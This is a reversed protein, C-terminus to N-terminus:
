SKPSANLIQTLVWSLRIMFMAGRISSKASPPPGVPQTCPEPIQPRPTGVHRNSAVPGRARPKQKDPEPVPYLDAESQNRRSQRAHRGTSDMTDPSVSQAVPSPVGLLGRSDKSLFKSPNTSFRKFRIKLSYPRDSLGVHAIVALVM